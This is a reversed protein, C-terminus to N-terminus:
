GIRKSRTPYLGHMFVTERMANHNALPVHQTITIPINAIRPAAAQRRKRTAQSRTALAGGRAGRQIPSSYGASRLDSDLPFTFVM